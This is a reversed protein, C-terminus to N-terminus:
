RRCCARGSTRSMPWCYIPHPGARRSGGAADLDLQALLLVLVVPLRCSAPTVGVSVHISPIGGAGLIARFHDEFEHAITVSQAVFALLASKGIGSDGLVAIADNDWRPRLQGIETSLDDGWRDSQFDRVWATRIREIEGARGVFYDGLVKRALAQLQLEDDLWTRKALPRVVSSALSMLQETLVAVFDDASAEGPGPAVPGYERIPVGHATVFEVLRRVGETQPPRVDTETTARRRLLIPAHGDRASAGMAALVEFATISIEFGPDPLGVQDLLARQM